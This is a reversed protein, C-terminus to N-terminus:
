DCEPWCLNHPYFTRAHGYRENCSDRTSSRRFGNRDLLRMYGTAKKEGDERGLVQRVLFFGRDQDLSLSLDGILQLMPDVPSFPLLQSRRVGVM